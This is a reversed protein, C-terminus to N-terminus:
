LGEGQARRTVNLALHLCLREYHFGIGHKVAGARHAILRLLLVFVNNSIIWLLLM